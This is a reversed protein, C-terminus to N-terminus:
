KNQGSASDSKPSEVTPLTYKKAVLANLNEDIRVPQGPSAKNIGEIILVDGAKLGKDLLFWEGTSINLEVKRMEAKGEKNVVAVMSGQQTQLVAQQPIMIANKLIAGTMTVRVFQGPLVFLGPNPFEARASVVSTNPNVAKDLFIVKGPTDYSSGDALDIYARLNDMVLRKQDWLTRMRMYYPSPLSFNVYIPDVRNVVTLLSESPSTANILNGVSRQEKSAYGRIPSRVYAYNLKIKAEDVAAKASFLDAKSSEYAAQASDRDRQSVANKAYLKKIREWDRQAQTHKAQAQLMAGQAQALAAKYTDPEIQFLLQNPEVYSGEEYDRSVLIGSVQARVEVARSGATQAHYSSSFPVDRPQITMVGVAPAPMAVAGTKKEECGAASFLLSGLALLTLIQKM